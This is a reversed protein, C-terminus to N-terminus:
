TNRFVVLNEPAERDALELAISRRLARATEGKAGQSRQMTLKLMGGACGACRSSAYVANLQLPRHRLLRQELFFPVRGLFRYSCISM